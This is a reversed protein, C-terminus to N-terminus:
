DNFHKNSWVLMWCAGVVVAIGAPVVLTNFDFEKWAYYLLIALLPLCALLTLIIVSRQLARAIKGKLKPSM